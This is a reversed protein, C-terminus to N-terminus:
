FKPFCRLIEFHRYLPGLLKKSMSKNNMNNILNSQISKNLVTDNILEYRVNLLKKNDNFKTILEKCILSEKGIWPRYNCSWQYSTGFIGINLKHSINSCFLKIVNGHIPLTVRFVGNGGDLFYM